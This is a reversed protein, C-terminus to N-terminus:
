YRTASRERAERGGQQRRLEAEYQFKRRMLGGPDDPINRLWQESRESLPEQEPEIAASSADMPDSEPEDEAPQTSAEAADSESEERAAEAADPDAEPESPSESESESQSESESDSAREEAPDQGAGGASEEDAPEGEEGSEPEQPPPEQKPQQEGEQQEEQQSELLEAVLDRNFRANESEPVEELAKDYSALAEELRGAFALANGRNYHQLFSDGRFRDAADLYEGERYLSVGEEVRRHTQQDQRQWLDDWALAVAPSPAFAPMSLGLLVIWLANKRFFLAAVPLLLLVLWYGEDYRIDATTDSADLEDGLRTELSRQITELDADDTQLDAYCGGHREALQVLDRRNLKALIAQGQADRMFGGRPLPIPAADTTGVGLICLAISPGIAQEIAAFASPEIGDTIILLLGTELSAGELLERAMVAAAEVHSGSGPMVNPHLSPVLAEITAADDTLPSVRYADDAYAILATEGEKRLRLLDILKLRARTLRDPTLDSALMSPSLDFAIVMANRPQKVPLPVSRWSPGALALLALALGILSLAGLWPRTTSTEIDLYRLKEPAIYREWGSSRGFRRWAWPILPLLLLGLLWLPRLFAFSLLASSGSM